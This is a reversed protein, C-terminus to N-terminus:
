SGKTIVTHPRGHHSLVCSSNLSATFSLSSFNPPPTNKETLGKTRLSLTVWKLNSFKLNFFLLWTYLIIKHTHTQRHCQEKKSRGPFWDQCSHFLSKKKTFLLCHVSENNEAPILLYPKSIWGSNIKLSMLAEARLVLKILAEVTGQKWLYLRLLCRGSLCFAATVCAHGIDQPICLCIPLRQYWWSAKQRDDDREPPRGFWWFHLQVWVQVLMRRLLHSAQWKWTGAVVQATDSRVGQMAAAYCPLYHANWCRLWLTKILLVPWQNCRMLPITWGFLNLNVWRRNVGIKISLQLGCVVQPTGFTFLALALDMAVPIFPKLHWFVSDM